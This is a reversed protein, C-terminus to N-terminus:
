LCLLFLVGFLCITLSSVLVYKIHQFASTLLSTKGESKNLSKTKILGRTNGSFGLTTDLM